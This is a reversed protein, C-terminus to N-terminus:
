EGRNLFGSIEAKCLLDRVFKEDGSQLHLYFGDEWDYDSPIIRYNSDDIKMFDLLIIIQYVQHWRFSSVLKM